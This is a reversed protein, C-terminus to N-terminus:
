LYCCAHTLQKLLYVMVQLDHGRYTELEQQQEWQGGCQLTIWGNAGLM